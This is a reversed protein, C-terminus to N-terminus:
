GNAGPEEGTPTPAPPTGDGPAPSAALALRTTRCPPLPCEEFTQPGLFPHGFLRDANFLLHMDHFRDHQDRAVHVLADRYRRAAGEAQAQASRAAALQTELDKQVVDRAWALEHRLQDNINSIELNEQDKEDRYAAHRVEAAVWGSRFGSDHYGCDNTDMDHGWTEQAFNEHQARSAELAPQMQAGADVPSQNIAFGGTAGCVCAPHWSHIHETPEM